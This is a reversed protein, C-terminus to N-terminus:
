GAKRIASTETGSHEQHQRMLAEVRDELIALRRAVAENDYHRGEVYDTRLLADTIDRDMAKFLEEQRYFMPRLLRRLLRRIPVLLKGLGRVNQCGAAYFAYDRM